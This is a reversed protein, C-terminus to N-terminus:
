GVSRLEKRLLAGTENPLLAGNHGTSHSFPDEAKLTGGGWYVMRGTQQKGRLHVSDLGYVHLGIKKM